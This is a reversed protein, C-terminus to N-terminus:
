RFKDHTGADMRLSYTSVRGRRDSVSGDVWQKFVRSIVQGAVGKASQFDVNKGLAFNIMKARGDAGNPKLTARASFPGGTVRSLIWHNAMWGTRAGEWPGVRGDSIQLTQPRVRRIPAGTNPSVGRLLSSRFHDALELQVARVLPRVDLHAGFQVRTAWEASFSNKLAFRSGKRRSPAVDLLVVARRRIQGIRRKRESASLRGTKTRIKRRRAM